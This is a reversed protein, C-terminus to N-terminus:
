QGNHLKLYQEVLYDEGPGNADTISRKPFYAWSEFLAKDPVIGLQNEVQTFNDVASKLWQEDSKAGGPISTNYIIGIRLHNDHAFQVVQQLSQQWHWNDEPWNIDLNLFGIPKGYVQNFADLWEKYETRWNPQKTLAPLPETDGIVVDPFVKQYEKMVAAARDAVNQITSHCANPGSYYHGGFLPGDMAVYALTGGANKIKRAIQANGPPDTYGEVGKGCHFESFGVWSQALSEIAFGIHKEKLKTFTKALVDDPLTKFNGAFAVVRVHDMLPPWPADNVFLKQWGQQGDVGHATQPDMAYGRLFFWTEPLPASGVNHSFADESLNDKKAQHIYQLVLNTLTGPQNEPLVRTPYHVWTVFIAQDPHVGLDSEVERYHKVANQVWGTDSNSVSNADFWPEDGRAAADYIVGFPIGRAKFAKDLPLLNQVAEKKWGVDAQMFALKEGTIRQYTDAWAALEDVWARSKNVVETDGIQANPFYSRVLRVSEAVAKAIAESSEHCATPGSYSHGWYYPEDMGIYKVDGGNRRVKDFIRELSGPAVYAETNSRCRDSRVILGIGIAIDIHRRKLDAITLSLDSDTVRELNPAVFVAVKVNAAVTAWPADPKWLDISDRRVWEWGPVPHNSYPGAWMWIETAAASAAIATMILGIYMARSLCKM